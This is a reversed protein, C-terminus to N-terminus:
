SAADPAFPVPLHPELWAVGAKFLPVLSANRWAPQQAIFTRSTFYVVAFLILVGRLLGFLGGLVRDTGSLQVATLFKHVVFGLLAASFVCAVVILVVAISTRLAAVGIDVPLQAGLPVAYRVSLVVAAVWGAVSFIERMLGRWLGILCSLALVGVIVWDFSTM